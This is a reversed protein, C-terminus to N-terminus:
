LRQECLMVVRGKEVASTGEGEEDGLVLEVALKAAAITPPANWAIQAAAESVAGFLDPASIRHNVLGMSLPERANDVRCLGLYNALYACFTRAM